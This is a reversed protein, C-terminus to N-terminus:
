TIQQAQILPEQHNRPKVRRWSEEIRKFRIRECDCRTLSHKAAESFTCLRKQAEAALARAAKRVGLKLPKLSSLRDSHASNRTPSSLLDYDLM